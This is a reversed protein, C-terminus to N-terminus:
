TQQNIKKLSKNVLLLNTDDAYHYTTAHKISRSLDNIYILFLLPGPIPGQPVGTNISKTKSNSGNIFVFQTRDKLYSEFWKLPLGRIGYYELKNLLIEHNVTDFAKQLDIFIWCAFKNDDLAKRMTETIDILNHKTRFGFQLEHLCNFKDLFKYLRSHM